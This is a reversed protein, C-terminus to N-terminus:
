VLAVSRRRSCIWCCRWWMTRGCSMGLVTHLTLWGACYPFQLPGCPTRGEALCPPSMMVVLVAPPQTLGLPTHPPHPPTQPPPPPPPSLMTLPPVPWSSWCLFLAPWPQLKKAPQASSVCTTCPMCPRWRSTLPTAASFTCRCSKFQALMRNFLPFMPETCPPKIWILDTKGIAACLNSGKWSSKCYVHLGSWRLLQRMHTHCCSKARCKHTYLYLQRLM